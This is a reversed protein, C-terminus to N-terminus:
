QKSAPLVQRQVCLGRREKLSPEYETIGNSGELFVNLVTIALRKPTLSSGYQYARKTRSQSRHVLSRLDHLCLSLCLMPKRKSVCARAYRISDDFVYRVREDLKLGPSFSLHYLHTALICFGM